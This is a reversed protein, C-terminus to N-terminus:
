ASKRKADQVRRFLDEVDSRAYLTMTPTSLAKECGFDKVWQQFTSRGVGLYEAAESPRLNLRGSLPTEIKMPEKSM